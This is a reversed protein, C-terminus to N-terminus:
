LQGHDIMEEDEPYDNIIRKRKNFIPDSSIFLKIIVIRIPFM